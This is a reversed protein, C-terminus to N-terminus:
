NKPEGGEEKGKRRQPPAESYRGGGGGGKPKEDSSMDLFSGRVPGKRRWDATPIMLEKKESTASRSKKKRGGRPWLVRSLDDGKEIFWM